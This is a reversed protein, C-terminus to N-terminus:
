EYYLQVLSKIYRPDGPLKLNRNKLTKGLNEVEERPIEQLNSLLTGVILSKAQAELLELLDMARSVSGQDCITIGHNRMLFANAKHIVKDFAEALDSTVPDRCDVPLVPGLEIVPQLIFPRSLINSNTCAFGTLVSPHAHVVSKIDPRKEFIKLYMLLEGSPKRGETAFLVEGKTDIFIIDEFSIESKLFKTPTILLINDEVKHCLNGGHSATYDGEGLRGSVEVMEKIQAKYSKQLKNMVSEKSSKIFRM